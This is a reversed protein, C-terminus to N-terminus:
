HGSIDWLPLTCAPQLSQYQGHHVDDFSRPGCPCEEYLPNQIRRAALGRQTSERENKRELTLCRIRKRCTTKLIRLLGIGAVLGLLMGPEPVMRIDAESAQASLRRWPGHAPNPPETIGSETNSFPVYLVRARWRYLTDPTLGTPTETLVVGGPTATVDTWNASRHVICSGSTFPVGSACIEIELKVRGRGAPHTATMQVEFSTEDYSGGWPQVPQGSGDARLQQAFVPRGQSNGGQFVYASGGGSVIVDAYGDGNVDGASAENM